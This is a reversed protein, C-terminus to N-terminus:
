QCLQNYQMTVTYTCVILSCAYIQAHLKYGIAIYVAASTTPKGWLKGLAKVQSVCVIHFLTTWKWAFFRTM